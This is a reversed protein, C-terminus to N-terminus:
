LNGLTNRLVAEAAPYEKLDQGVRTATKDVIERLLKTDRGLAVSPGVGKLMDELFRAVEQSRAAETRAKKAESEAQQRWRSQNSEAEGAEGRLRVQEREARTARIAQWTSAVVGAMTVLVVVAAATFTVRHRRMAKRLRYWGTPPRAEVPEHRLHREVDSALGN